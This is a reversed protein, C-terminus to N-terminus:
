KVLEMFSFVALLYKNYAHSQPKNNIYKPVHIQHVFNCEMRGMSAKTLTSILLNACLFWAFFFYFEPITNLKATSACHKMSKTNCLLLLWAIVVCYFRNQSYIMRSSNILYIHIHIDKEDTQYRIIMLDYGINSSDDDNLISHFGFTRLHLLLERRSLKNQKEPKQQTKNIHEQKKIAGPLFIVSSYEVSCVTLAEQSRSLPKSPTMFYPRIRDAFHKIIRIANHHAHCWENKNPQWVM